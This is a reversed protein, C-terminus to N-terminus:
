MKEGTGRCLGILVAKELTHEQLIIEIDEVTITDMSELSTDLAHITFAYHHTGKFYIPCPGEYGPDGGNAYGEVAGYPVKDEAIFKTGPPINFVFWHVWPMPAADMDVVTLILSQALDPIGEFRLPPSM